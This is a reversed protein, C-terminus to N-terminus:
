PVASLPQGKTQMAGRQVRHDVYGRERPKPENGVARKKRAQQGRVQEKVLEALRKMEESL